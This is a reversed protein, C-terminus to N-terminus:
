DTVILTTFKVTQLTHHDNLKYNFEIKITDENIHSEGRDHLNIWEAIAQKVDRENLEYTTKTKQKM